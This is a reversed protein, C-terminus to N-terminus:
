KKWSIGLKEPTVPTFDRVGYQALEEDTWGDVNILGPLEGAVGDIEYGVWMAFRPEETPGLSVTKKFKRIYRPM